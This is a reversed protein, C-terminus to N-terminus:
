KLLIDITKNLLMPVFISKINKKSGRIIEVVYLGSITEGFSYGYIGGIYRGEKFNRNNEDVYQYNSNDFVDGDNTPLYQTVPYIKVSAASIDPDYLLGDKEIHLYLNKTVGEFRALRNGHNQIQQYANVISGEKIYEGGFVYSSNRLFFELSYLVQETSDSYQALGDSYSWLMDIYDLKDLHFKEMINLANTNDSLTFYTTLHDRVKKANELTISDGIVKILPNERDEDETAYWEDYEEENTCQASIYTKTKLQDKDAKVRILSYENYYENPVRKIICPLWGDCIDKSDWEELDWEKKINVSNIKTWIDDNSYNPKSPYSNKTHNILRLYECKSNPQWQFFTVSKKDNLGIAMDQYIGSYDTNNPNSKRIISSNGAWFYGDDIELENKSITQTSNPNSYPTKTCQAAITYAKNKYQRSTVAITNWSSVNSITIPLSTRYAKKITKSSWNKIRIEVPYSKNTNVIIGNNDKNQAIGINLYPCSSTKQWQFLVTSKKNSHTQMKAYDKDCGFCKKDPNIISGVGDVVTSSAYVFSSAGLMMTFLFNLKKM